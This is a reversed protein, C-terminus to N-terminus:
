SQEKHRLGQYDKLDVVQRNETQDQTTGTLGEQRPENGLFASRLDVAKAAKQLYGPSFKAYVEETIRSNRHGLFRAIEPMSVGDEAMWSAASHRFVHATVWPLGCRKGANRLATKVSMVREGGWTIVYESGVHRELAELLATRAWENIPVVSRGKQGPLGGLDIRSAKLDIQNWKLGLIAERRAGTACALIVFLKVHPMECAGLFRVAEERTLRKDRPPPKPPLPIYPARPILEKREGWRLATRLRGLESLLTGDSIGQERRMQVYKAVADETLDGVQLSGLTPGMSRWQFEATTYSPKQCISEVYGKWIDEVTYGRHKRELAMEAVVRRM